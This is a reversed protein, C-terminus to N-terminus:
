RVVKRLLFKHNGLNKRNDPWQDANREGSHFAGSFQSGSGVFCKGAIGPFRVPIRIAPDIHTAMFVGIPSHDQLTGRFMLSLHRLEANQLM